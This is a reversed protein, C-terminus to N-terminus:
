YSDVRRPHISAHGLLRHWREGRCLTAAAYLLLAGALSAYAHTGSALTPMKQKSAWWAAAALFVVLVGISAMRMIQSRRSPAVAAEVEQPPYELEEPLRELEPTPASM